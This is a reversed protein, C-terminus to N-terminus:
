RLHWRFDVVPFSIQRQLFIGAQPFMQDLGPQTCSPTVGFSILLVSVGGTAQSASLAFAASSFLLPPLFCCYLSSFPHHFASSIPDQAARELQLSILSSSVSSCSAATPFNIRARPGTPDFVPRGCRAISSELLFDALPGLRPLYLSVDGPV